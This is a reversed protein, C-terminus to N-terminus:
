STEIVKSYQLHEHINILHQSFGKVQTVRYMLNQM